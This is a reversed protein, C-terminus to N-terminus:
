HRDSRPGNLSFLFLGNIRCPPMFILGIPAQRLGAADKWSRTATIEVSDPDVIQSSSVFRGM